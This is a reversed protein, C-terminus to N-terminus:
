PSNWILRAAKLEEIAPLFREARLDARAQRDELEDQAALDVSEPRLTPKGSM